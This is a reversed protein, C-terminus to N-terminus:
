LNKPLKISEELLGKSEYEKIKNMIEKKSEELKFKKLQKICDNILKKHDEEDGTFEIEMTNIWEKTCEIDNCRFEINKIKEDKTLNKYEVILKYISKHSELVLQDISM